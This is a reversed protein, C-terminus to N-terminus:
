VQVFLTMLRIPVVKRRREIFDSSCYHCCFAAPCEGSLALGLSDSVGAVWGKGRVAPGGSAAPLPSSPKAVMQHGESRFNGRVHVSGASSSSAQSQSGPPVSAVRAPLPLPPKISSIPRRVATGGVTFCGAGASSDHDDVASPRVSAVRAKWHSSSSFSASAAASGTPENEKDPSVSKTVNPADAMISDPPSLILVVSSLKFFKVEGQNDCHDACASSKGRSALLM